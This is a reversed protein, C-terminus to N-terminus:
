LPQRSLNSSAERGGGNGRELLAMQTSLSNIYRITEKEHRQGRAVTVSGQITQGFLIELATDRCDLESQSSENLVPSCVEYNNTPM